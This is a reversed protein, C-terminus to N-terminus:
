HFNRSQPLIRIERPHRAGPAHAPEAEADDLLRDLEASRDHVHEAILHVVGEPSRQAQGEVLMLRASMVERRYAEFKRVWLLVNTIGTEDELTVFIANGTGPRQRVLVVGATRTWAGDARESTQRCTSVGERAFIPRLFQMPHGKLSLRTMQYDVAVHEALPM